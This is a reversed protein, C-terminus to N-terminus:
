LSNIESLLIDLAESKQSSKMKEQFSIKNKYIKDVHALLTENNLNEEELTISYGKNEFAKANLIQDGRSQDLGLPIILMPKRLALFEFIANSGGRTMIIDTAALIDPLEDHLYEFQRYGPFMSFQEDKNGKGCLHVIQYKKTLEKLSSRVVENITKAGLSGGMITLIPLQSHFGLFSRARRVSGKMIEKRIPSGITITKHEPFFRKAEDFSTFIKTAFRQSIKNALGPTMDSEHIFVPIKLTKAALIVPVSVFGGKSFVLHPNLNKLIKKAEFYGKLVHFIDKVNQVDFYRRLKGSHIGYYSINLKQILEREIGKRSGVYSIDWDQGLEKIIAINPTVHGASGGGTFVIKKNKM